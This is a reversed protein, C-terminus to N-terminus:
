HSRRTRAASDGGTLDGSAGALRVGQVAPALEISDPLHRGQLWVIRQSKLRQRVPKFAADLRKLSHAMEPGLVRVEGWEEHASGASLAFVFLPVRLRALYARVVAPTLQNPAVEADGVLLVVARPRKSDHAQLGALAVAAALSSPFSSPPHQEALWLFGNEGADLRPSQLFMRPALRGPALPVAVPSVFRARVDPGIWDPRVGGGRFGGLNRGQTRYRIGADIDRLAEVVTPDRVVVLEPSGTEVGHVQLREGQKTFWEGLEDAPPMRVGKDLIVAVATLETEIESGRGGGFAAELRSVRQNDFHLTASLFHLAAPDYSPLPISAPDEIALSQGDFLVEISRPRLQGYSEWKLGVARPRGPEEGAFAMSAATAGQEGLNVWRRARGLERGAADRAIAEVEHPALDAGFDVGGGWPEGTWTAVTAGDLRIEVAAVQGVVSVEVPHVGVLLGLLLSVFEIM